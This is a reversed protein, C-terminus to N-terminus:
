IKELLVKVVGLGPTNEKIFHASLKLTNFGKRDITVLGLDTKAQKWVEGAEKIDGDNIVEFTDYDKGNVNLSIKHGGKWEGYFEVASTILTAKYEGPERCIFDWSVSDETDYWGAIIGQENVKSAINETLKGYVPSLSFSHNQEIIDQSFEPEGDFELALVTLETNGKCNIRVIELGTQEDYNQSWDITYADGLVKINKVKSKIHCLELDKVNKLFHLYVTNGKKNFVYEECGMPALVPKTGHISEGNIKMWEALERFIKVTGDPWTGDPKPGVNISLNANVASCKALTTLVQETSKWNNDGKNYGWTGNLTLISECRNPTPKGAVSNDGLGKYDHFEETLECLRSNTMCHPQYEKVMDYFKKAQEVTVGWCCDFWIIDVDGYNTLLEKVQPYSKENLYKDFDWDSKDPFDWDNYPSIGLSGRPDKEAGGGHKEHWDLCHSYYLGLRVGYKRCAEALEAVLDRKQYNWLSFDSYDTRFNCFGEHHKTTFVIYRVGADYATKIWEDANFNVPNFEKATETYEENPIRKEAQIWEACYPTVVGKYEGGYMAYAGFHVMMGLGANEWWKETM